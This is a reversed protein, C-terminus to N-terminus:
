DRGGGWGGHDGGRGGRREGDGWSRDRREGDSWSRDRREGGDWNARADAWRERWQAQRAARDDAAAARAADRAATRAASADAARHAAAERAAADRAAALKAAKAAALERLQQIQAGDLYRVGADTRRAALYAPLTSALDFTAADPRPNHPYLWLPLGAESPEVTGDPARLKPFAAGVESLSPTVEYTVVLTLTEGAPLTQSLTIVTKDGDETVTAPAGNATVATPTRAFDLTFSRIPSQATFTMKTTADVAGASKNYGLALAYNQVDYEANDATPVQASTTVASSPTAVLVAGAAAAVAMGYTRRRTMTIIGRRTNGRVTHLPM